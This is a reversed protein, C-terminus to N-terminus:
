LSHRSTMCQIFNVLPHETAYQPQRSMASMKGIFPHDGAFKGFGCVSGARHPRGPTALLQTQSGSRIRDDRLLSTTSPIRFSMATCPIGKGLGAVAAAPTAQVLSVLHATDAPSGQQWSRPPMCCPIQMGSPMLPLLTAQWRARSWVSSPQKQWRSCLKGM